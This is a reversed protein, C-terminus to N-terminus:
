ALAITGLLCGVEADAARCSQCSCTSPLGCNAGGINGSAGAFNVPESYITVPVRAAGSHMLKLEDSILEVPAYTCVTAGFPAPDELPINPYMNQAASHGEDRRTQVVGGFEHSPPTPTPAVVYPM